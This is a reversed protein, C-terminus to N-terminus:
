TSLVMASYNFYSTHMFTCKLAIFVGKQHLKVVFVLVEEAM